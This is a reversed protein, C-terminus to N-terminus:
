LHSLVLGEDEARQKAYKNAIDFSDGHLFLRVGLNKVAQLKLTQRPVQCLLLPLFASKKKGSLAVGQAHNGASACIM